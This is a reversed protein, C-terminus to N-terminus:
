AVAIGNHFAPQDLGWNTTVDEFKLNGLNHFAVVPTKLPDALKNWQYLEEAKEEQPSRAIEKGDPGLRPPVLRGARRLKGAKENLDLDNADIVFGSPIVLDEYGDLDVDIFAPQWSWDSANVGAYDAIEEFTGDGRNHYLMNRPIQPRDDITGI